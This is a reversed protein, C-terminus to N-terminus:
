VATYGGDIVITQGTLYSSASSALYVMLGRLDDPIGMRGLPISATWQAALEPNAETFERTMESLFYGPAMANVRIGRPAWEVALSKALHSVAAKSANYSAQFQPQNVILASMSSIFVVSAPAQTPLVRRAFAQATYFTGNLNVDIVKSWTEQAVDASEGWITIGAATVLISPMGLESSIRAFVEDLATPDTVDVVYAAARVDYQTALQKASDHVVPLMDLVAVLAGQEALAAALSYGLGRAGGTVVAVQGRIDEFM